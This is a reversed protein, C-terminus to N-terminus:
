TEDFQEIHRRFIVQLLEPTLINNIYCTWDILPFHQNLEDLTMPHYLASVNRREERAMSANALKMEFILSEELENAARQPDAGLLM